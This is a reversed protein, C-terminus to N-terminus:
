RPGPARPGFPSRGTGTALDLRSEGSRPALREVLRDHMSPIADAVREYPASGWVTSQREKLEEFAM